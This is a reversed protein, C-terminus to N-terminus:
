LGLSTGPFLVMWDWAKAYLFYSGGVGIWGFFILVFLDGFGSYGYPNKGMTYKLAAAISCSGLLIFFVSVTWDIFTYYILSLGLVFALLSVLVIARKMQSATLLGSQITRRPGERKAGDIGSASDGYDNALNSAIQLAFATLLSLVYITWDWYGSLAALSGGMTIVAWALPLTRLRMAKIWAGAM